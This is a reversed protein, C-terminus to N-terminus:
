QYWISMLYERHYLITNAEQWVGDEPRPLLTASQDHIRSFAPSGSWLLLTTVTKTNFKCLKMMGFPILNEAM